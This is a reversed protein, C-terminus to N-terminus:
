DYTVETVREHGNRIRTLTINYKDGAFKEKLEEFAKKAYEHDMWETKFLHWYKKGFQDTHTYSAINVQYSYM